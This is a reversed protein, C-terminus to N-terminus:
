QRARDPPIMAEVALELYADLEQDALDGDPDARRLEGIGLYLQPRPPVSSRSVTLLESFLFYPAGHTITPSEPAVRHDNAPRKYPSHARKSDRGVQSLRCRAPRTGDDRVLFRPAAPLALHGRGSRCGSASITGTRRM